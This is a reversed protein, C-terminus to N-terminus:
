AIYTNGDNNTTDEIGDLIDQITHSDGNSLTIIRQFSKGSRDKSNITITDNEEVLVGDIDGIATNQDIAGKGQTQQLAISSEQIEAYTNQAEANILNAIDNVNMDESYDVIM